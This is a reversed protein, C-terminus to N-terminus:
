QKLGEVEPDRKLLAQKAWEIDSRRVARVAWAAGAYVVVGLPITAGLSMGRAFWLALGMIAAALAPRASLRPMDLPYGARRLYVAVLALIVLDTAVAAIGAATAAGGAGGLRAFLLILACSLAVNVAAGVGVALTRQRQRNAATLAVGITNSAFKLPVTAGLVQFVLVAPAFHSGFIGRVLPQGLAILAAAAPLGLLSLVTFSRELGLKFAQPRDPHARAMLPLLANNLGAAFMPLSLAVISGVRFYGAAEDSALMALLVVVYVQFYVATLLLNLAFPWAESALRRWLALDAAPRRFGILRASIAVYLAVLLAKAAAFAALVALVGGGTYILAFVAVLLAAKEIVIGITELEMRELAYFTGAFLLEWSHFVTFAAALYVGKRAIPDSSTLYILGVQVAFTVATLVIGLGLANALYTRAEARRRAVERAILLNLGLTGLFIFLSGYNSLFTFLGLRGAGLVRALLITVAFNTAGEIGRAAFQAVTNKAVRPASRHM